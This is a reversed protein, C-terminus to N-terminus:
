LYSLAIILKSPRSTFIDRSHHPKAEGYCIITGRQSFGPNINNVVDIFGSKVLDPHVKARLEAPSGEHGPNAPTYVKYGRQEYRHKWETWSINNVFNGHILIITKSKEMVGNYWREEFCFGGSLELPNQKAGM